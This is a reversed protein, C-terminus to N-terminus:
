NASEIYAAYWNEVTRVHDKRWLAWVQAIYQEVLKTRAEPTPAEVIDVIKLCTTFDPPTLWCFRSHRPISLPRVSRERVWQASKPPVKAELVGYLVLLHVAVSQIAQPSPVGHHQAAYADVLLGNLLGSAVPPSGGNALNSFLLWCSPSAGIYPHTHGEYALKPLIAKCDPCQETASHPSM